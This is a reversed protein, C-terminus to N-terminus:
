RRIMNIDPKFARIPSHIKYRKSKKGSDKGVPHSKNAESSKLNELILNSVQVAKEDSSPTKPKYQFRLNLIPMAQSNLKDPRGGERTALIRSKDEEKIASFNEPPSLKTM